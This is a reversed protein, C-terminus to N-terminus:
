RDAPDLIIAYAAAKVAPFVVTRALADLLGRFFFGEGLFDPDSTTRRFFVKAQNENVEIIVFWWRQRAIRIKFLIGQPGFRVRARAIVDVIQFVIWDMDRERMPFGLKIHVPRRLNGVNGDLFAFPTHEQLRSKRAAPKIDSLVSQGVNETEPLAIAIMQSRTHGDVIVIMRAELQVHRMNELSFFAFSILITVLRSGAFEAPRRAFDAFRYQAAVHANLVDFPGFARVDDPDLVVRRLDALTRQLQSLVLPEAAGISRQYQNSFNPFALKLRKFFAFREFLPHTRFSEGTQMRPRIISKHDGFNRPSLFRLSSERSGGSHTRRHPRWMLVTFTRAPTHWLESALPLQTPEFRRPSCGSAFQRDTPSRVRNPPPAAVLRSM